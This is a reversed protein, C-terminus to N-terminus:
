GSSEIELESTVKLPTFLSFYFKEAKSTEYTFISVNKPIFQFISVNKSSIHKTHNQKMM